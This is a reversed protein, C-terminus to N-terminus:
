RIGGQEQDKAIVRAQQARRIRRRVADEDAAELAAALLEDVDSGGLRRPSADVVEGETETM